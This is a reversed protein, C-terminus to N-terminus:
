PVAEGEVAEADDAGGEPEPPPQVPPTTSPSAPSPDRDPPPSTETNGPSPPPAGTDRMWTEADLRPFTLQCSAPEALEVHALGQANLSGRKVSGDPLALEYPEGPVPEGIMDVLEIEVWSAQTAAEAPEGSALGPVSAIAAATVLSGGGSYVTDKGPKASWADVPAEPAEVSVESGSGASGGSNIKVMTGMITVGSSDIKVFNGGVKLTLGSAAEIVAEGGVKLYYKGGVKESHNGGIKEGVDGTVEVLRKGGIKQKVDLTTELNQGKKVLIFQDEKVTLHFNHDVNEVRDNNVRLHYDQQAYVELKESGATDDFCIENTGGGGTSSNTKIYSKTKNDPLKYAPLHDKNYVRGVIIPKDPDGELFDVIVEQGIRPLFLLGYQGGAFGQSVRIWCSAKDDFKGERDWNFQVKVRGYEDTHIEEGSPGVVRATQTGRVVPWPTVRAPRYMVSAPICEFCCDYIPADFDVVSSHSVDSLLNRVTLADLPHQGNVNAITALDRSVQGAHYLWSTLARRATPDGAGLRSAIQLLAEALERVAPNDNSRAQVVAQHARADLVSGRGDAGSSTQQTGSKGQYTVSTLLYSQNLADSPFESLTFTRGPALRPSNSAGIGTIRLSDFEEARLKALKTGAAQEVYEGPYDSFELGPDRGCDAKTELNLAPKEFNFDRLLVAGPRVSQGLLFRYVHEASVNMQTPGTFPITAEGEVAPYDKADAMVLVHGESTQDFHWYIGEEEMLRCVFNFDTERYQVCYDRTQTASVGRFQFRDAALGGDTLVQTIIDKTNKQQFIRSNYRHTLLWLSPVLEAKLQLGVQTRATLELRGVIGHFYRTGYETQVSLVAAKGVVDDFAVSQETSTLEVEFRFLQCIGETGRYRLVLFQDIEGGDIQFAIQAASLDRVLAM